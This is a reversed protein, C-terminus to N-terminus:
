IKSKLVKVLEDLKEKIEISMEEGIEGKKDIVIGFIKIREPLKLNLQRGLEIASALNISHLYSFSKLGVFDEIKLQLVSGAPTDSDLVSDIVIVEDYGEIAELFDIGSFAGTKLDIDQYNEKLRQAVIIGLADNGCYENGIGIILRKM